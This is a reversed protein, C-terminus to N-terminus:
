LDGKLKGFFCNYRLSLYVRSRPGSQMSDSSAFIANMMTSLFDSNLLVSMNSSRITMHLILSFTTIVIALICLNRRIWFRQQIGDEM